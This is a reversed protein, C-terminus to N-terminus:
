TRVFVCCFCAYCMLLHAVHVCSALTLHHFIMPPFLYNRCRVWYNWSTVWAPVTLLGRVSAGGLSPCCPRGHIQAEQLESSTEPLERLCTEVLLVGFSFVDMKPSHQSAFWGWSCCLCPLRSQYYFCLEHLQSVRLRVGQGELWKPPAWSACQWQLHWSPHHPLAEVPAPLETWM